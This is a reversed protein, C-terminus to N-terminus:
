ETLSLAGKPCRRVAERVRDLLEPGPEAVLVEVYDNEDVRFVEPAAKVCLANGECSDLNVVIKM